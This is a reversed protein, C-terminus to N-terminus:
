GGKLNVRHRATTAEKRNGSTQVSVLAQTDRAWCPLAQGVRVSGCVYPMKTGTQMWALSSMEAYYM